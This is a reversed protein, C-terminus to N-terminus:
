QMASFLSFTDTHFQFYASFILSEEDTVVVETTPGQIRMFVTVPPQRGAPCWSHHQQVTRVQSTLLQAPSTAQVADDYSDSKLDSTQIDFDDDSLDFDSNDSDSNMIIENAQLANMTTIFKYTFKLKDLYSFFYNIAVYLMLHLKLDQKAELM